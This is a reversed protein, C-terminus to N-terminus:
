QRRSLWGLLLLEQLLLSSGKPVENAKSQYAKLVHMRRLIEHLKCFYQQATQLLITLGGLLTLASVKYLM